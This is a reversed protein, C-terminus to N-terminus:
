PGTPPDSLVDGGQFSAIYAVLDWMEDESLMIGWPPMSSGHVEGGERIRRFLGEWDRAAILTDSPFQAPAVLLVDAATGSRFLM